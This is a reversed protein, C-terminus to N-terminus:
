LLLLLGLCPCVLHVLITCTTRFFGSVVEDYRYRSRHALLELADPVCGMVTARPHFSSTGFSPWSLNGQQHPSPVPSVQGTESNYLLFFESDKSVSKWLVERSAYLSPLSRDADFSRGAVLEFVGFVFLADVM